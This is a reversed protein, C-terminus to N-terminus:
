IISRNEMLKLVSEQDADPMMDLFCFRAAEKLSIGLEMVMDGWEILDRTSIVSVMPSVGATLAGGAIRKPDSCDRVENAVRVMKLAYQNDIGTKNKLVQVEKAEPLYGMHVGLFRNLFALNLPKTGSYMFDDDGSGITNATAVVGFLKHKPIVEQEGIDSIYFDTKVELIRHLSALVDASSMDVEELMLTKGQSYARLAPGYAVKTISEGSNPDTILWPKGIVNDSSTEGHCSVIEAKRKLRALVNIALTSKGCGTPGVIVINKGRTIAYEVIKAVQPDEEYHPDVKLEDIGGTSANKNRLQAALSVASNAANNM